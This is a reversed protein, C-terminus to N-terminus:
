KSKGTGTKITQKLEAICSNISSQLDLNINSCYVKKVSDMYFDKDDTPSKAFKFVLSGDCSYVAHIFKSVEYDYIQKFPTTKNASDTRFVGKSIMKKVIDMKKDMTLLLYNQSTKNVQSIIKDSLARVNEYKISDIGLKEASMLLYNGLLKYESIEKM